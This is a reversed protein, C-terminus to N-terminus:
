RPNRHEPKKTKDSKKEAAPTRTARDKAAQVDTKRSSSSSNSLAAVAKERPAAVASDRDVPKETGDSATADGVPNAHAGSALGLLTQRSRTLDIYSILAGKPSQRLDDLVKLAQKLRNGYDESGLRVEIHSDDGALQARVDHVDIVNVESVRESLGLADWEQQLATFRAVRERNEARAGEPDDENLGRLFFPPMPDAPLMEGLLVADDDIWRFRGSATRVVARPIRETIRM